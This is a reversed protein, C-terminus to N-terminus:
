SVQHRERVRLSMFKAQEGAREVRERSGESEGRESWERGVQEV